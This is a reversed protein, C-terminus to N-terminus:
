NKQYKLLPLRVAYLSDRIEDFAKVENRVYMEGWQLLANPAASITDDDKIKDIYALVHPARRDGSVIAVGNDEGSKIKIEYIPIQIGDSYSGRTTSYCKDTNEKNLYYKSNISFSASQSLARTNTKSVENARFTELLKFMETQSLEPSSEYKVSLLEKPSLEVKKNNLASLDEMETSQCGFIIFSFSM